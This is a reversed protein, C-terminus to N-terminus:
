APPPPPPAECASARPPEVGAGGMAGEDSVSRGDSSVDDEGDELLEDSEPVTSSLAELEGAREEKVAEYETAVCSIRRAQSDSAEEVEVDEV